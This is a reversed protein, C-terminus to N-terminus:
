VSLDTAGKNDSTLRRNTNNMSTGHVAFWNLAAVLFLPAGFITVITASKMTYIFSEFFLLLFKTCDQGQANVFKLTVM